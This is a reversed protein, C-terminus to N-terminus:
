MCDNISNVFYHPKASADFVMRVKTTTADERIVSKHPMYFVCDGTPRNPVKEIVGSEDKTAVIKEYAEKLKM